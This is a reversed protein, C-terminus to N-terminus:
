TLYYGRTNFIPVHSGAPGTNDFNPLLLKRAMGTDFTLVVNVLGTVAFGVATVNDQIFRNQPLCPIINASTSGALYVADTGVRGFFENQTIIRRGPVGIDLHIQIGPYADATFNNTADCSPFSFNIYDTATANSVIVNFDAKVLQGNIGALTVSPNAGSAAFTYVKQNWYPLGAENAATVQRVYDNGSCNIFKIERAKWLYVTLPTPAWSPAPYPLTTDIYYNQQDQRIAIVVGLGADGVFM